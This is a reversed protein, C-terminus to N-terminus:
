LRNRNRYLLIMFFPAGIAATLVGAPVDRPLFATRAILDAILLILAGLLASIPLVGSFSPGALKRAMHPAMLGIFAIAGGIAVASGALSVSLAILLLRQLQVRAGVSTAIDDGLAQINVQRAQLWTLALLVATWPLLTLVDNEWSVGYISGTMFTLSQSALQLPGSIILMFSLSKIAASVGIGILIIRLPSVGKKWALVYLLATVLFAGGIAALPMWHISISGQFLFIFLVAGLSAGETIGAVDPSALPNRIVGQLIAGAVALSAGVLVAIIIRPLRIKQVIVQNGPDAMGFLSKIVTLPPIYKSSIGVSIVMVALCLVSLLLCIWVTRKKKALLTSKADSVQLKGPKAM